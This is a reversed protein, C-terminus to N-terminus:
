STQRERIWAAHRALGERGLRRLATDHFRRHFQEATIAGWEALEVPNMGPRPFFGKETGQPGHQNWPCVEQCADCGFLRDGMAPRLAAPVEDQQTLYSLCRRADLQHPAALAGSPCADICRRCEGCLDREWPLDHVLEETSLLAALFLWSGLDPHILLNNKGIGGLGALRAFGRELFPASDVIGRVGAQPVTQRHFKVLQRLRRRIVAHYDTGWAYRSVRGQGPGAPVPEVSRYNMALMLVSKAGPLLRNLDGYAALHRQFHRMGAAFGRQLWVVLREYDPPMQAPTAGVLSFGQRRAEAKLADTLNRPEM